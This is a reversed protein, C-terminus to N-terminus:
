SAVAEPEIKQIDLTGPKLGLARELAEVTEAHARKTRRLELRSITSQDIGSQQALAVQNWKRRRRAARLTVTHM